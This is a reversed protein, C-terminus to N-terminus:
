AQVDFVQQLTQCASSHDGFPLHNDSGVAYLFSNIGTVGHGLCQIAAEEGPNNVSDRSQELRAVNTAFLLNMLM